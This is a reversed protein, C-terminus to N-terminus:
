SLFQARAGCGGPARAHARHPGSYRRDRANGASRRFRPICDAFDQADQLSAQSKLRRCYYANDVHFMARGLVAESLDLSWGGDSYLPHARRSVATTMSDPKSSRWFRIGNAPSRWTSRRPLRVRVPRGTKWAGLAAIAAYPNAQTEKGGFAGGMRLCEVTVQNRPIGLVRAVIEQTETPHQTSCHLAIGGTEDLWAVLARRKWTSISRAASACNARIRHPSAAIADTADGREIM